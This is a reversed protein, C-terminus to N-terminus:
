KKNAAQTKIIKIEFILTKGALPHNMDIIVTEENIEHVKVKMSQGQANRAMLMTGVKLAKPPINTRPVEQLMAPNINGYADKPQVRISKEDGVQMGLLENELGPIIQNKGHTYKLPDKGKNSEIPHGQDDTLTYEMSVQSGHQIKAKSEATQAEINPSIFLTVSIAVGLIWFFRTTGM